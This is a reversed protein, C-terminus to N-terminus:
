LDKNVKNRIESLRPVFERDRPKVGECKIVKIFTLMLIKLDLILNWNDVYWLDLSLKEDWSLTNRGSVQALGTIGPKVEHRRMEEQTYFPLYEILLPRPGVLSMEGKIVNFLEPLEDLSTKRLFKGLKTIRQEDPLLNGSPDRSERMTRFKYILFPKGLHGARVQTFFIPFGMTIYISISILIMLPAFLVLAICAGVIDFLRKILLSKSM